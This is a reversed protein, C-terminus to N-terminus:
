VLYTHRRRTSNVLESHPCDHPVIGTMSMPPKDSNKFMQGDPQSILHEEGSLSEEPGKNLLCMPLGLGLSSEKLGLTMEAKSVRSM